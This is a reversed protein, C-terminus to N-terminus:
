KGHGQKAGLTPTVQALVHVPDLGCVAWVGGNLQGHGTKAHGILGLHPAGRHNQQM